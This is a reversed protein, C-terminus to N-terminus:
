IFQKEKWPGLSCSFGNPLDTECHTTLRHLIKTTCNQAHYTSLNIIQYVLYNYMIKNDKWMTSFCTIQNLINFIIINTLDNDLADTCNRVITTMILHFITYPLILTNTYYRIHLYNNLIKTSNKYCGLNPTMKFKRSNQANEFSKNCKAFNCFKSHM